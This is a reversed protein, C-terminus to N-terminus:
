PRDQGSRGRLRDAVYREPFHQAVFRQFIVTPDDELHLFESTWHIRARLDEEAEPTWAFPVGHKAADFMSNLLADDRLRKADDLHQTDTWPWVGWEAMGETLANRLSQPLWESDRSHGSGM